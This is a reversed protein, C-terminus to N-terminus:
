TPRFFFIQCLLIFVVNNYISNEVKEVHCALMSPRFNLSTHVIAFNSCREATAHSFWRHFPFSSPFQHFYNKKIKLLLHFYFTVLIQTM